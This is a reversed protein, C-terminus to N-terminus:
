AKEVQWRNGLLSSNWPRIGHRLREQAEGESYEGRLFRAGREPGCAGECDDVSTCSHAVRSRTVSLKGSAWAERCLQRTGRVVIPGWEALVSAERDGQISLSQAV